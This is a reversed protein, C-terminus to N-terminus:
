SIEKKCNVDSLYFLFDARRWIVQSIFYFIYEPSENLKIEDVIVFLCWELRLYM